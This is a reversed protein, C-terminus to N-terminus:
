GPRELSIFLGGSHAARLEQTSGDRASMRVHKGRVWESVQTRGKRKLRPVEERPWENKEQSAFLPARKCLTRSEKYLQKITEMLIVIIRLTFYSVCKAGNPGGCDARVVKNAM